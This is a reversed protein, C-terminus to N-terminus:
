SLEIYREILLVLKIKLYKCSNGNASNSASRLTRLTDTLFLNINFNLYFHLLLKIGSCAYNM